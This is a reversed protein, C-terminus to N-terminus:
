WHARQGRQKLIGDLPNIASVRLDVCDLADRRDIDFLLARQKSRSVSLVVEREAVQDLRTTESHDVHLLLLHVFRDFLKGLKNRHNRPIMRRSPPSNPLRIRCNRNIRATLLFQVRPQCIHTKGGQCEKARSIMERGRLQCGEEEALRFHVDFEGGVADEGAGFELVTDEAGRGRVAADPVLELVREFSERGARCPLFKEYHVIFMAQVRIHEPPRITIRISPKRQRPLQLTQPRPIPKPHLDHLHIVFRPSIPRHVIPREINRRGSPRKESQLHTGTLLFHGSDPDCQRGINDSKEVTNEGNRDRYLWM